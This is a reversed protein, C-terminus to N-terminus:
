KEKNDITDDVILDTTSASGFVDTLAEDVESDSAFILNGEVFSKSAYNSELHDKVKALVSELNSQNLFKM